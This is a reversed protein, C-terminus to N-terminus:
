NTEKLWSEGTGVGWGVAVMKAEPINMKLIRCVVLIISNQKTKNKTGVKIEFKIRIYKEKM